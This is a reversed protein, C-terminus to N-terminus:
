RVKRAAREKALFAHASAPAKPSFSVADRARGVFASNRDIAAVLAKVQLRCSANQRTTFNEDRGAGQGRCQLLVCGAAGSKPMHAVAAACVVLWRGGPHPLARRAAGQGALAAARHQPAGARPVGRQLVLAGPAGGAAAAGAPPPACTQLAVLSAVGRTCVDQVLLARMLGAQTVVEEQFASTRLASKGVRLATQMDPPQGTAAQFSSSFFHAGTQHSIHWMFVSFLLLSHLLSGMNSVQPAKSLDSWHLMELLLPSLPVLVDAAVALRQLARAQHVCSLNAARILPAVRDSFFKHMCLLRHRKRAPTRVLSCHPPAEHLTRVLRLRLPFYRPAPVLRAAGLLVQALPYVLARLEQRTV